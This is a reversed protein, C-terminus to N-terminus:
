CYGLSRWASMGGTVSPFLRWRRLPSLLSLATCLAFWAGELVAVEQLELELYLDFASWPAM